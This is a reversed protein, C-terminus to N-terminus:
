IHNIKLLELDQEKRYASRECSKDMSCPFIGAQISKYVGKALEVVRMMELRNIRAQDIVIKGANVGYKYAKHLEMFRPVQGYTVQYWYAYLLMQKNSAARVDMRGVTKHDIVVGDTLSVDLRLYFPVDIGEIYFDTVNNEVDLARDKYTRLINTNYYEIAQFMAEFDSLKSAKERFINLAEKIDIGKYLMEIADHYAKGMVFAPVIRHTKRDKYKVYKYYYEQPCRLYLSM